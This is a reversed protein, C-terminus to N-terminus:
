RSGPELEISVGILSPNFQLGFIVSRLCIVVGRQNEV